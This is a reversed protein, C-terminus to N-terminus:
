KVCKKINCFNGNLIAAGFWALFQDFYLENHELDEDNGSPDTKLGWVDGDEYFEDLERSFAEAANMDGMGMAAAAWMGITLHSHENRSRSITGGALDNWMDSKPVQEGNMKYFNALHAPSNPDDDSGDDSAKDELFEIANELFKVARPENFWIADTALRWYVRIGDKFMSQGNDYANYGPGNALLDGWANMWDPLLGKDYGPNAEITDYCQNIVDNWNHDDWQDFEDFIRYWAPAFYGPNLSDKSGFANGPIVYKYDEIMNDWISTVISQARDYYSVDGHRHDSWIGQNVLHDAFILALAIDEDADTAANVGNEDFIGGQENCHWNYVFGNWMHDEAAGWIKNFYSQDNAYLALIMGYGVGESVADNPYESKPRHVLPVSYKDINRKKLGDWTALLAPTWDKEVRADGNTQEIPYDVPETEEETEQESGTETDADSDSDGDGDSDSDSDADSDGDSDADSDSDSDGDADGDSVDGSTYCGPEGDVTGCVKSEDACNQIETWQQSTCEMLAGDYCGTEGDSNCSSGAIAANSMMDGGCAASFIGFPILISILFSIHKM